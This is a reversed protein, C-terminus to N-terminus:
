KSDPVVRDVFVGKIDVVGDDLNDIVKGNLAKVQAQRKNRAEVIYTRKCYRM